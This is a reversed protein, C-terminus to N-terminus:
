LAAPAHATLDEASVIKLAGAEERLQLNVVHQGFAGTLTIPGVTMQGDADSVAVKTADISMGELYGIVRAQEVADRVAAKSPYVANAFQESYHAMIKDTDGAQLAASWATVLQQAAGADGKPAPAASTACGAAVVAFVCLSMGIVVNKWPMM